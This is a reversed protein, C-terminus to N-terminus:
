RSKQTEDIQKELGLEIISDCMKYYYFGQILEYNNLRVASDMARIYEEKERPPIYVPPLDVQKFLLNVLARSTRGNGDKFPHIKILKCKLEIVSNIYSILEDTKKNDRISRGWKILEIFKNDLSNVEPPVNRFDPTSIDSNTIFCNEERFRGGFEPYDVKSYLLGHIQIILYINCWHNDDFDRLYDYVAGLGLREKKNYVEELDNENIIYKRKFKDYIDSLNQKESYQSYFLILSTPIIQSGGYLKGTNKRRKYGDFMLYILHRTEEPTLAINKSMFTSENM